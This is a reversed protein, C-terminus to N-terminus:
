HDFVIRLDGLKDEALGVQLYQVLRADRGIRAFLDDYAARVSAPGKLSDHDARRDEAQIYEQLTGHPCFLLKVLPDIKM